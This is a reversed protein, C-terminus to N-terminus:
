IRPTFRSLDFIGLRKEIGAVEAVINEFGGEGFLEVEKDEFSEGLSDLEEASVITQFAPFLVTDERAKHPRYMRCFARLYLKLRSKQEATLSKAPLALIQETLRRGAQHQALLVKVLDVLKGAKEFRPFLYNEELKEHYDEVFRQILGATAALADFPFEKGSDIRLSIEDYILLGRGLVGHERMLDEAPSIEENSKGAQEEGHVIAGFPSLGAAMVIALGSSRLFNRRSSGSDSQKM